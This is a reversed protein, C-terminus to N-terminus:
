KGAAEQVKVSHGVHVNAVEYNDVEVWCQKAELGDELVSGTAFVRRDFTGDANKEDVFFDVKSGTSLQYNKGMKVRACKGSGRTEVVPAGPLFRTSMLEAFEKVNADAVAPIATPTQSAKHFRPSVTEVTKQLLIKGSAVDELRFDSKVSIAGADKGDNCPRNKEKHYLTYSSNAVFILDSKMIKDADNADADGNLANANAIKKFDRRNAVQFWGLGNLRATAKEEVAEKVAPVFRRDVLKNEPIVESHIEINYKGNPVPRANADSYSQMDYETTKESLPHTVCGAMIGALAFACAINMLKKMKNM